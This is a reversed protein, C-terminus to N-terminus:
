NEIEKSYPTAKDILEGLVSAEVELRDAIFDSIINPAATDFGVVDLMGEDDPDAISIDTATMGVVVLKAAIGTEERYKRLAEVPQMEGLWTENDTYIIFADVEMKSKLAYLMPLSCDTGGMTHQEIEKFVDDLRQKPSINLHVFQDSFGFISYEEEAKATVLSMTAAAIGPSLGPVGAITNFSDARDFITLKGALGEASFSRTGWQTHFGMSGSIDLGILIRKGSPRVNGFAAYFADHLADTVRTVPEWVNDGRFGHGQAYTLMASLVQIPHVRAKRLHEEDGLQDAVKRSAASGQTLLGVKSMNGLNRIMATMPMDDLLAEWVEPRKLWQNPVAERPMHYTRILETVSNLSMNMPDDKSDVLATMRKMTDYADLLVLDQHDAPIPLVQKSPGEQTLWDYILEHSSSAGRPHAVRLVDRHTWGHRNRYKVADYALKEAPKKEYWDQVAAKLVRGMGRMQRRSGLPALEMSGKPGGHWEHVFSLFRFLHTGIRCVRPLARGAAIRTQTDGFTICMSLAFISTDNKPASGSESMQAIIEVTRVGDEQICREVVHANERTMEAESAYYTGGETGLVLFRQLQHWDGISWGHGGARNAKQGPLPDPTVKDGNDPAAARTHRTLHGM